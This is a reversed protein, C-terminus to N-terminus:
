VNGEPAICILKGKFGKTLPYIYVDKKPLNAERDIDNRGRGTTEGVKIWNAAKYCTGRFRDREVFTELCYVPHGNKEVWDASVRASILSLVHSALHPVNIWPPILFRTNNTIYQLATTRQNADWDIYEDRSKCKWAASGFLLCAVIHGDRSRVIYKMNEGVTRDFGLYHYQNLLSKFEELPGGNSVLTVNLPQLEKLPCSILTTDHEIEKIIRRQIQKNKKQSPPLKIKGTKDLARLMDRCSIDKLRGDPLKWGWLECLEKSIKSRHWNPNEQIMLNIQNILEDTIVPRTLM